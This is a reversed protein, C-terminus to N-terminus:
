DNQIKRFDSLKMKRNPHATCVWEYVIEGNVRRRVLYGLTSPHVIRQPVKRKRWNGSRNHFTPQRM